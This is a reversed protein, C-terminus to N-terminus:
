DYEHALIAPMLVTDIKHLVGNDALIDTQTVLADNIHIKCGAREIAGRLFSQCGAM